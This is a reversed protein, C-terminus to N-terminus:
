SGTIKRNRIEGDKEEKYLVINNENRGSANKYQAQQKKKQM